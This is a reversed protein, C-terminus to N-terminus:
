LNLSSLALQHSSVRLLTFCLSFTNYAVKETRCKVVLFHFLSEITYLSSSACTTSKLTAKESLSISSCLGKQRADCTSYCLKVLASQIPSLIPSNSCIIHSFRQSAASKIITAHARLFIWARSRYIHNLPELSKNISYLIHFLIYVAAPYLSTDYPIVHKFNKRYNKLAISAWISKYLRLDVKYQPIHTLKSLLLLFFVCNKNKWVYFLLIYTYLFGSSSIYFAFAITSIIYSLITYVRKNEVAVVAAVTAVVVKISSSKGGM